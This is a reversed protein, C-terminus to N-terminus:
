NGAETKGEENGMEPRARLAKKLREALREQLAAPSMSGKLDIGALKTTDRQSMSNIRDIITHAVVSLRTKERNAYM